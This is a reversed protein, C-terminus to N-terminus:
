FGSVDMAVLHTIAPPRGPSGARVAVCPRPIFPAPWLKCHLLLGRCFRRTINHEGPSCRNDATPVVLGSPVSAWHSDSPSASAPAAALLASATPSHCLLQRPISVHSLIGIRQMPHRWPAALHICLSSNPRRSLSAHGAGKHRLRLRGGAGSQSPVPLVVLVVTDRPFELGGHKQQLDRGSGISRRARQRQVSPAATNRSVNKACM